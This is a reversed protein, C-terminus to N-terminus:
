FKYQMRVTIRDDAPDSAIQALDTGPSPSFKRIQEETVPHDWNFTFRVNGAVFANLAVSITSQALDGGFGTSAKVGKLTSVTNDTAQRVFQEGSVDTNPDYADYRVALQLDDFINQVIMAYYGFVNKYITSARPAGLTASDTAIVLASSGYFPVQGTYMEAKLITGGMDLLSLYFQADAGFVQRNSFFLGGRTAGSRPQYDSTAQTGTASLVLAGDTGSYEGILDTPEAIGGISWSGGVDFSLDDTITFPLRLHGIFEKQNAKFGGGATLADDKTLAANMREDFPTAAVAKPAARGVIDNTNFGLQSVGVPGKGFNDSGNFLGFELMPKFGDFVPTLKFQVGLDREGNFLRQEALSREAVERSSSSYGIEYGFPRNMSGLALSFISFPKWSAWVEKIEVSRETIDPYLVYTVPGTSHQFKIRGRRITFYNRTATQSSFSDADTWIWQPQIYGSIKLKGIKAITSELTSIREGFGEESGRAGGGETSQALTKESAIVLVLILFVLRLVRM